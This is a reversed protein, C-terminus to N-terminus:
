IDKPGHASDQGRFHFNASAIKELALLSCHEATGILRGRPVEIRRRRSKGDHCERGDTYALSRFGSSM